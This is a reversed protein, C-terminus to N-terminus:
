SRNTPGDGRKEAEPANVRGKKCNEGIFVIWDAEEMLWTSPESKCLDCPPASQIDKMNLREYIRSMVAAM